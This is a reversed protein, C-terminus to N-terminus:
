SKGSLASQYQPLGVIAARIHSSNIIGEGAMDRAMKLIHVIGDAHFQEGIKRLIRYASMGEVGFASALADADDDNISEIIERFRVRRSIQAFAGKDTNVHKLVENNGCFVFKITGGDETSVHLMQRLSKLPLNQAEDIIFVIEGFHWKLLSSEIEYISRKDSCFGIEDMIRRFLVTMSGSLIPSITLYAVRWKEVKYSQLAMTKGVGPSGIIAANTNMRIAMDIINHIRESVSTKVFGIM